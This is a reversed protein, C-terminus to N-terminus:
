PKEHEFEGSRHAKHHLAQPRIQVPQGTGEVTGSRANPRQNGTVQSTHQRTPKDTNPNQDPKVQERGTGGSVRVKHM